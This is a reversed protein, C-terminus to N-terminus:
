FVVTSILHTISSHRLHKILHRNCTTKRYELDGVRFLQCELDGMGDDNIGWRSRPTRPTHSTGSTHKIQLACVRSIGLLCLCIAFASATAAIARDSFRQVVVMPDGVLSTDSDVAGLESNTSLYTAESRKALNQTARQLRWTDDESILIRIVRDGEESFAVDTM